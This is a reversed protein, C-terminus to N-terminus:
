PNASQGSQARQNQHWIWDEITTHPVYGKVLRLLHDRLAQFDRADMESRLAAIEASFVGWSLFDEEARMIKPHETGTVADGILLEEYLKEGPRLGTFVIEIDGDPNAENREDLGSLRIMTRALDVIRIPQGMDLVFVDGGTAMAGAQIVLQV